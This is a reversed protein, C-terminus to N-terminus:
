RSAASVLAADAWAELRVSHARLAETRARLDALSGQYDRLSGGLGTVSGHLTALAAQWALVASRQGDLARDLATMAQRLRDNADNESPIQPKRVPFPLIQATASM